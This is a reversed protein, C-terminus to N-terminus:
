RNSPLIESKMLTPKGTDQFMDTCRLIPGLGSGKVDKGIRREIM